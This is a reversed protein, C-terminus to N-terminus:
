KKSRSQSTKKITRDGRRRDSAPAVLQLKPLKTPAIHARLRKGILHEFGFMGHVSWKSTRARILTPEHCGEKPCEVRVELRLMLNRLENAVLKNVEFSEFSTGELKDLLRQLKVQIRKQAKTLEDGLSKVQKLTNASSTKM